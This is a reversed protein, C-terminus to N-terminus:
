ETGLLEPLGLDLIIPRINAWPKKIVWIQMGVAWRSYNYM